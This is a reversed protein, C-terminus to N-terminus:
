FRASRAAEYAALLRPTDIHFHTYIATPFSLLPHTM